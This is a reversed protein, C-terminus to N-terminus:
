LDATTNLSTSGPSDSSGETDIGLESKIQALSKSPGKRAREVCEALFAMLRPNKQIALVEEDGEDLPVLVYEARGNRTLYVVEESDAKPLWEVLPRNETEIAITKMYQRWHREAEYPL